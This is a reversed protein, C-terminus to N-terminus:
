FFGLLRDKILSLLREIGSPLIKVQFQNLLKEIFDMIGPLRLADEGPRIMQKVIRAGKRSWIHCCQKEERFFWIAPVWSAANVEDLIFAGLPLISGCQIDDLSQAKVPRQNAQDIFGDSPNLFVDALPGYQMIKEKAFTQLIRGECPLFGNHVRHSVPIICQVASGDLNPHKVVVYGYSAGTKRRKRHTEFLYALLLANM